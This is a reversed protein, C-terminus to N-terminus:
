VPAPEALAERLHREADTSLSTQIVEGGYSKVRDIV